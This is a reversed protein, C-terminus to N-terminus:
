LFKWINENEKKEVPRILGALAWKKMLAEAGFHTLQLLETLQHKTFNSLKKKVFEHLGIVKLGRPIIINPRADWDLFYRTESKNIKFGMTILNQLISRSTEESKGLFEALNSLHAGTLRTTILYSLCNIENILLFIYEGRDNILGSYIDLCREDDDDDILSSYLAPSVNDKTIYWCDFEEDFEDNNWTKAQDKQLQTLPILDKKYYQNGSICSYISKVPCTRLYTIYKEESPLLRFNDMWYYVEYLEQSYFGKAFFETALKLENASKQYYGKLFHLWGQYLSEGSQEVSDKIQHYLELFKPGEFKNMEYKGIHYILDCFISHAASEKLSKESDNLLVLAAPHDGLRHLCYISELIIHLDNHSSKNIHSM